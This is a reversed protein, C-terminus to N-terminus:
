SETREDLVLSHSKVKELCSTYRAVIANPFLLNYVAISTGWVSCSEAVFAKLSCPARLM